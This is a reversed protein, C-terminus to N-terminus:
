PKCRQWRSVHGTRGTFDRAPDKDAGISLLLEDGDIAYIAIQHGDTPLRRGDKQVFTQVLMESPRRLPELRFRHQIPNVRWGDVVITEWRGAVLREGWEYFIDGRVILVTRDNEAFRPEGPRSEPAPSEVWKGQLAALDHRIAAEHVPQLAIAVAVLMAAPM